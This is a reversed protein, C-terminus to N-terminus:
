TIDFSAIATSDIEQFLENEDGMLTLSAGYLDTGAKGVSINAESMRMGGDRGLLWYRDRRDKIIMSLRAKSLALINERLESNLDKLILTASPQYSVSGNGKDVQPADLLEADGSDQEYTYYSVTGGSFGTIISNTGTTYTIGDVFNGIYVENVGAAAFCPPTYGASPIPCNAM